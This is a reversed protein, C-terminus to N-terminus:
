SAGKITMSFCHGSKKSAAGLISRLSRATRGQDGMVRELDATDVQVALCTGSDVALAEVVVRSNSDLLASVVGLMLSRMTEISRDLEFQPTESM